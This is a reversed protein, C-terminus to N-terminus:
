SGGGADPVVVDNDGDGDIDGTAVQRVAKTGALPFGYDAFSGTGDNRYVEFAQAGTGIFGSCNPAIIDLDGDHDLDVLQIYNSFGTFPLAVSDNFLAQASALSSGTLSALLALPAVFRKM